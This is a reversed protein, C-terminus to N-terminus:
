FLAEGQRLFVQVFLHTHSRLKWKLIKDGNELTLEQGAAPLISLCFCSLFLLFSFWVM